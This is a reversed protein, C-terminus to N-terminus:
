LRAAQMLPPVVQKKRSFVHNLFVSNEEKLMGFANEAMWKCEGVAILETGGVVVDTVMLVVLDSAEIKAVEGMKERIDNYITFFGSFDSTNVQSIVVKYKGFTFRKMDTHLLSMVDSQHLTSGAQVLRLGYLTTDVEAIEALLYAMERDELTCTPSKFILTDSLIASLMLLAMTKPIEIKNEIYMKSVITCTCGVPEVRFYLPLMTAVNAVRHHDIVELISLEHIGDISQSAENHDVLIVKKQKSEVLNSKSLMGKIFGAEDVVPFRLFKSTLMNEKVDEITEYTTFYELGEKKVIDRIPVIQNLVKLLSCLSEKTAFVSMMKPSKILVDSSHVNAVIVTKAGIRFVNGNQYNKIDCLVIDDDSLKEGERIDEFLRVAGQINGIPHVGFLLRLQFAEILNEFPTQTNKLSERGEMDLYYPLIDSISIVGILHEQSDVVPISRGTHRIITDLTAKISDTEKATMVMPINLDLVRAHIKDLLRPPEIKLQELVFRTEKNPEGLAIPEYIYESKLQNKLYAYAIASCISDTDPNKHGFVYVKEM